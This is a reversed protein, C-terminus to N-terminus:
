LIVIVNIYKDETIHIQDLLTNAQEVFIPFFTFSSPIRLNCWFDTLQHERQHVKKANCM